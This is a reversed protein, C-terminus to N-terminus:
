LNIYCQIGKVCLTGDQEIFENLLDYNDKISDSLKKSQNEFQENYIEVKKMLQKLKM